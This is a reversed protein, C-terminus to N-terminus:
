AIADGGVNEWTGGPVMRFKENGDTDKLIKTGDELVTYIWTTVKAVNEM